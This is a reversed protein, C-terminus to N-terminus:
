RLLAVGAQGAAARLQDDLTALPLKVRRALDLYVSDYASRQFARATTLSQRVLVVMSDTDVAQAVIQDIDVLRKILM